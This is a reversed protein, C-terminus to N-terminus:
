RNQELVEPTAGARAAARSSLVLSPAGTDVLLDLKAGDVEVPVSIHHSPAVQMAASAWDGSWRPTVESCDTVHWLDLRRNRIDLDLDFRSLIDAGILGGVASGDAMAQDFVAVPFAQGAVHVGGIMLVGAHAITLHSEAGGVGFMDATRDYDRPLMLRDALGKSLTTVGAGTDILFLANTGGITVPVFLKQQWLTLPLSAVLDIRCAAHAQFAFLAFVAFSRLFM